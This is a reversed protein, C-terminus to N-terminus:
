QHRAVSRSQEQGRQQEILLLLFSVISKRKRTYEQLLQAFEVEAEVKKILEVYSEYDKIPFGGGFLVHQLLERLGYLIAVNRLFFPHLHLISSTRRVLDEVKEDVKVSRGM